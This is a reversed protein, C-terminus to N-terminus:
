NNVTFKKSAFSNKSKITLLYLGNAYKSTNVNLQGNVNKYFGIQKGDLTTIQIDFLENSNNLRITMENIVPNPFLDFSLNEVKVEEIGSTPIEYCVELSPHKSSDTHDSSYFLLANNVTENVLRLMFGYNGNDVMDQVLNTVDTNLYDQISNSTHPLTVENQSTATPQSNWTVVNETWPATVRQILSSNDTGINGSLTGTAGKGYLNLKSSTIIAGSPIYSLDFDFLARNSNIGGSAGDICFAANQAATGYNNGATSYNDHYGLSVDKDTVSVSCDSITVTLKPFKSSDGSEISHFLLANNVVENTLKLLIGNNGYNMMDLVLNTVDINTYDQISNNTHPLTVENLNTSTPQSNWTVVNESWSATVRQILTSNDPGINGSLTGTVGKGYLSLTASIVNAGAPINTLDFNILARNLNVGGAAGDICFAGNQAASGYNNNATSYNDHYGLSADAYIDMTTQATSNFLWFTAISIYILKTRIVSLKM